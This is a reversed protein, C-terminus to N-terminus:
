GPGIRHRPGEAGPKRREQPHECKSADPEVIKFRQPHGAASQGCGRDVSSRRSSSCDLGLLLNCFPDHSADVLMISHSKPRFTIPQCLWQMIEQKILWLDGDFYQARELPKGFAHMGVIKRFNGIRVGNYHYEIITIQVSLQPTGTRRWFVRYDVGCTSRQNM